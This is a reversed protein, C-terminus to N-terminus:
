WRASLHLVVELSYGAFVSDVPQNVEVLLGARCLPAVAPPVQCEIAAQLIFCIDHDRSGAYQVVRAERLDLSHFAKCTIQEVAGAPVVRHRKVTPADTDNAIARGTHLNDGRQGAPSRFQLM